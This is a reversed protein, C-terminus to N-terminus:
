VACLVTSILVYKARLYKTTIIAAQKPLAPQTVCSQFGHEETTNEQYLM